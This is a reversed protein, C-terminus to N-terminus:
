RSELGTCMAFQTPVPGSISVAKSKADGRGYSLRARCKALWYSTTDDDALHQDGVLGPHQEPDSRTGSGPETSEEREGAQLQRFDLPM